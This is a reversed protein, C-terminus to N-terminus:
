RRVCHPPNGFCVLRRRMNAGSGIVVSHASRISTPPNSPATSEHKSAASADESVPLSATTLATAVIVLVALAKM